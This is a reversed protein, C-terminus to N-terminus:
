LLHKITLIEDLRAQSICEGHLPALNKNWFAEQFVDLCGNRVPDLVHWELSRKSTSANREIYCIVRFYDDGLSPLFACWSFVGSSTKFMASYEKTTGAELEHIYASCTALFKESIPTPRLLTPSTSIVAHLSSFFGSWYYHLLQNRQVDDFTFRYYKQITQPSRTLVNELNECEINVSACYFILLMEWAMLGGGELDTATRPTFMKKCGRCRCYIEQSKVSHVSYECQCYPCSPLKLRFIRALNLYLDIEPDSLTSLFTDLWKGEPFDHNAFSVRLTPLLNDRTWQRRPQTSM